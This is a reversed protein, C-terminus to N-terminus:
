TDDTLQTHNCDRPTKDHRWRKFRPHVLRGKSGVLQYEVEVVRGALDNIKAMRTMVEREDDTMGSLSAIEIIRMAKSKGPEVQNVGVVIAGVQGEYKGNGEIHGLVICDVTREAKVKFWRGCQGGSKLMWGEVSADKAMKLMQERARETEHHDLKKPIHMFGTVIQDAEVFPAFPLGWDKVQRQAWAVSERSADTKQLYPVAFAVIELMMHPARLVTPVDFRGDTEGSMLEVSISTFRPAKAKFRQVFWHDHLRPFRGMFNLHPLKDKGYAVISDDAQKFFTCLWGDLKHQAVDFRQGEWMKGKPLDHVWQQTAM